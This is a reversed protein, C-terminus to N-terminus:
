HGGELISRGFWGAELSGGELSKKWGTLGGAETKRGTSTKFREKYGLVPSGVRGVGISQQTKMGEGRNCTDGEFMSSGIWGAESFSSQQQTSGLGGEM